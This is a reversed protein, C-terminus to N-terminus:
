QGEHEIAEQQIPTATSIVTPTVGAGINIVIRHSEAIGGGEKPINTITSIKTLKEIAELKANVPMNKDKIINFLPVLSDELLFSAKLRIRQQINLDAEWNKKTERYMSAWAPIRTKRVLDEKTVGYQSLIAAPARIGAVLDCILRADYDTLTQLDADDVPKEPMLDAPGTGFMSPFLNPDLEM